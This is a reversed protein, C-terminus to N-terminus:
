PLPILKIHSCLGIKRMKIDIVSSQYKKWDLLKASPTAGSAETSYFEYHDLNTLSLFILNTISPLSIEGKYVYAQDQYSYADAAFVLTTSSFDLASLQMARCIDKYCQYILIYQM